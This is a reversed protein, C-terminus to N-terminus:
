RGIMVVDYVLRVAMILVTVLLIWKILKTKSGMIIQSGLWAGCANGVALLLGLAWNVEGNIGFVILSVFVYTGGVLIKVSNAHIFSLQFVLLATVVIYFGAGVQIFGGYFGIALFTFLGLLKRSMSLRHDAGVRKTPDWIIFIITVVMTVALILQFLEDGIAVAAFAGLVSGIVAPLMVMASVKTELQGKNRFALVAIMTQVVIAVRNTGNAEASPLGLFILMPLTLLSGGASVTNIIGAVLGVMLIVPYIWIDIDM